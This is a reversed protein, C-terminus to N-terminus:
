DRRRNEDLNRSGAEEGWAKGLTPDGELVIRLAVAAVQIAEEKVRLPSEDLLAKAVEGVEEVLAILNPNPPPFKM